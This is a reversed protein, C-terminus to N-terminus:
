YRYTRAAGIRDHPDRASARATSECCDKIGIMGSTTCLAFAVDM